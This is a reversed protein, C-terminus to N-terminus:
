CSLRYNKARDYSINICYRKTRQYIRSGVAEDIDLLDDMHLESSIITILDQNNYRSNLIEFAINIEATTPKKGRETKFFDDIYLVPITKLPNVAKAYAEDDMVVAKIQIVENRWLMYRAAIGRNMFELTMATCIHTKGCGVQGGIFFWERNNDFLYEKASELISKQWPTKDIFTSFTYNKMLSTLGSAKMREINRRIEMCKCEKMYEAGSEYVM